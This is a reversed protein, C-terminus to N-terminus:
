AAARLPTRAAPAGTVWDVPGGPYNHGVYGDPKGTVAARRAVYREMVALRERVWQEPDVHAQAHARWAVDLEVYGTAIRWRELMAGTAYARQVADLVQDETYLVGTM